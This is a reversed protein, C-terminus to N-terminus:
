RFTPSIYSLDGAKGQWIEASRDDLLPVKDVDGEELAQGGRGKLLEAMLFCLAPIQLPSPDLGGLPRSFGRWVVGLDPKQRLAQNAEIASPAAPPKPGHL